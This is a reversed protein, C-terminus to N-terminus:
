VVTYVATTHVVTYVATYVVTNLATYAHVSRTCPGTCPRACPGYVHVTTCLRTCPRISATYVYVDLCCHVRGYVPRTCPGTCQGNVHVCRYMATCLVGVRRHVRTCSLVSATYVYVTRTCPRTVSTCVARVRGNCLWTCPGYVHVCAHVRGYVPRRCVGIWARSRWWTCPTYPGHVCSHVRVTDVGTVL